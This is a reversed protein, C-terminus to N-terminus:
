ASGGIVAASAVSITAAPGGANGEPATSSRFAVDGDVDLLSIQSVISNALNSDPGSSDDSGCGALVLSALVVAAGTRRLSAFTHM